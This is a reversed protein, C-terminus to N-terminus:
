TTMKSKSVYFPAAINGDIKQTVMMKNRIIKAPISPLGEVFSLPQDKKLNSAVENCTTQKVRIM